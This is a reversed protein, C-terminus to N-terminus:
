SEELLYVINIMPHILGILM